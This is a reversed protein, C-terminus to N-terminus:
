SRKPLNWAAVERRSHNAIPLPRSRLSSVRSRSGPRDANGRIFIVPETVQGERLVMARPPAGPSTVRLSDVKRKLETLKNRTDGRFVPRAEDLTINAPSDSGYLLQRLQEAAPNPLQTTEPSSKQLDTWETQVDRLLKGYLRALDM